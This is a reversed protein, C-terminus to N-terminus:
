GKEHKLVFLDFLICTLVGPVNYKRVASFPSHLSVLFVSDKYDQIWPSYSNSNSAANEHPCHRDYGTGNAGPEDEQLQLSAHHRNLLRSAM